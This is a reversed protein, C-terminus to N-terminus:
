VMMISNIGLLRTPSTFKLARCLDIELTKATCTRNRSVVSHSFPRATPSYGLFSRAGTEQHVRGDGPLKEMTPWNREPAFPTETRAVVQIREVYELLQMVRSIDPRGFVTQCCWRGHHTM